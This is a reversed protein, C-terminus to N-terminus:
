KKDLDNYFHWIPFRKLNAADEKTCKSLWKEFNDKDELLLSVGVKMLPESKENSLLDRLKALEDEGLKNERKLVQCYNVFYMEKLRESNDKDMMWCSLKESYALLDKKRLSKEESLKDYTELMYLLDLNAMEFIHPNKDILQEYSSILADFPVNDCRQWLDENQLYSFPSAPYKKNDKFKYRISIQGDFFDGFRSNGKEDVAEWLLIKLDGIEVLVLNNEKHGISVSEGTCFVHLIVDIMREQGEKITSLDLPRNVHLMALVSKLKKWGEIREKLDKVLDQENVKLHLPFDGFSLCEEKDLALIFEADKISDDLTKSCSRFTARCDPNDSNLLFSFTLVDGISIILRGDKVDNKYETFFVKGGVAVDRKVVNHFSISEIENSIPVEINFEKDIQAYLFSNHSSLYGMVDVPSMKRSPAVFSFNKIKRKKMDEFTIPKKDAFSVQKKADAWFVKAINEFDGLSDPFPKMAVSVTNQKDKGKLLNKITVPLLNRYFLLTDKGNNKEQCVIYITPENLYAKLDVVSINYRFKNPKFKAVEKGKLQVPISGIFSDKSKKPNAFLKISGDWFPEKDNECIYQSIVNSGQIYNKFALIAGEEIDKPTM